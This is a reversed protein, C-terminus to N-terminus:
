LKDAGDSGKVHSNPARFTSRGTRRDYSKYSCALRKGGGGPLDVVFSPMMFGAITGRIQSELELITSLPTRLDEVGLVLDHQYVYYTQINLEALRRILSSMTEFGSNIGNILVTQNRVQVGARFLKRVALETIWSVENPHNFHTHLSGSKGMERGENSLEILANAWGDEEDLFRSPCVALGKSAFRIRNIHPMSLFRRGIFLLQDPSLSFADGGSIVIDHLSPTTSIYQLIPEWKKPMPLFRTRQVLATPVGISYSRTCYRCYVPCVSTALFLAKDPYRHVLGKVPSDDTEHLSDLTLSPHDPLLRSGIAIFQRLIPDSFPQEWNILSLIHPTLRVSMPARQVGDRVDELFGEREIPKQSKGTTSFTGPITKPLVDRMFAVLQTHTTISNNAQWRYSLFEKIGINKWQPIKRWYLDQNSAEQSQVAPIQHEGIASQSLKGNLTALGRQPTSHYHIRNLRKFVLSFM